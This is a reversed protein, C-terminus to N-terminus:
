FTIKFLHILKRSKKLIAHNTKSKQFISYGPGIKGTNRPHDKIKWLIPSLGMRTRKRVNTEQSIATIATVYFGSHRWSKLLKVMEETIKGKSIL